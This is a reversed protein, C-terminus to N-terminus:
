YQKSNNCNNIKFQSKTKPNLAKGQLPPNIIKNKRLLKKKLLTKMPAKNLCRPM